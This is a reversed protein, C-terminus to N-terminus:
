HRQQRLIDLFTDRSSRSHLPLDENAGKVILAAGNWNADWRGEGSSSTVTEFLNLIDETNDLDLNEDIWTKFHVPQM